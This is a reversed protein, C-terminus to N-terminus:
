RAMKVLSSAVTVKAQNESSLQIHDKKNGVDKHQTRKSGTYRQKRFQCCLLKMSKVQVERAEQIKLM